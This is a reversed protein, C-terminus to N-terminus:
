GGCVPPLISLVVSDQLIATASLIETDTALVANKVLNRYPEGLTESLRQKIDAVSCCRPAEVTVREGCQRFVGYLEVTVNLVNM